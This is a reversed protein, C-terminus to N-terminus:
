SASYAIWPQRSLVEAPAETLIVHALKRTQDLGPLATRRVGLSTADVEVVCPVDESNALVLLRDATMGDLVFSTIGTVKGERLEVTSSTRGAEDQTAVAVRLSGNALAEWSVADGAARLLAGGLVVSSLYPGVYLSEGLVEMVVAAHEHDGTGALTLLDRWLPPDDGAPLAMLARVSTEPMRDSLLRRISNQLARQEPTLAFFV